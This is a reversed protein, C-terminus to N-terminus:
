KDKKSFLQRVLVISGLVYYVIKIAVEISMAFIINHTIIWPRWGRTTTRLRAKSGLAKSREHLFTCRVCDLM